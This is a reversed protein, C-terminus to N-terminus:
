DKKATFREVVTVLSDVSRKLEMRTEKSEREQTEIIHTLKASIEAYTTDLSKSNEGTKEAFQRFESSYDGFQAEMSGFGELMEMAIPGTKIRFLKMAPVARARKSEVREVIIPEPANKIELIFAEISDKSGQVFTRVSGDNLNEVYGSLKFKRASREAFRRFGVRQVAGEIRVLSADINESPEM